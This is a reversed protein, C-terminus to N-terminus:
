NTIYHLSEHFNTPEPKTIFSRQETHIERCDMFDGAAVVCRLLNTCPCRRVKVHVQPCILNLFNAGEQNLKVAFDNAIRVNLRVAVDVM